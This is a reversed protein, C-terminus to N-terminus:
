IIELKDKYSVEISSAAFVMTNKKNLYRSKIFKKCIQHNQHIFFLFSFFIFNHFSQM